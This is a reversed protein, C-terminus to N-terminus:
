VTFVLEPAEKLRRQTQNQEWYTRGFEDVHVSNLQIQKAAAKCINSKGTELAGM